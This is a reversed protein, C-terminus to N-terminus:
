IFALGTVQEAKEMGNGVSRRERGMGIDKKNNIAAQPNAVASTGFAFGEGHASVSASAAPKFPSALVSTWAM